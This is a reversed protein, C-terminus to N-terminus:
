RCLSKIKDIIARKDMEFFKEIDFDERRVFRYGEDQIRAARRHENVTLKEAFKLLELYNDPLVIVGDADGFIINGPNVVAGGCTIPIGVEGNTGTCLTTVPSFGTSFVPFGLKNLGIRDTVPGDVVLGGLERHKMMLVLQDGACAYYEEGARDVVIISGKPAKMIAYYLASGDRGIARVTFAPGLLKLEPLVSKIRPHMYGFDIHHGFQAPSTDMIRAYVKKDLGM